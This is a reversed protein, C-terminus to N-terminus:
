LALPTRELGFEDEKLRAWYLDVDSDKKRLINKTLEANETTVNVGLIIEEIADEPIVQARDDDSLASTTLDDSFRLMLYRVEDEYSWATSKHTVLKYILKWGEEECPILSPFDDVYEVEAPRINIGETPNHTTAGVQAGSLDRMWSLMAEENLGVAFGTHMDAYHSWLLESGDQNWHRTLSLVGTVPSVSEKFQHSRLARRQEPGRTKNLEENAMKQAEERSIEPHRSLAEETMRERLWDEPCEDFRLPINCDFPDNFQEPASFWVENEKLLRLHYPNSFSRFKYLTAM